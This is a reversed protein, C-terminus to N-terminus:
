SRSMVSHDYLEHPAIDQGGIWEVTSGSLRVTNFYAPDQLKGFWEGSIYPTVDFVGREHTEFTLLLKYDHLPKVDIVKPQLM